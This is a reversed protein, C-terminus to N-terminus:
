RREVLTQIKETVMEVSGAPRCAGMLDSSSGQQKRDGRVHRDNCLADGAVRQKGMGAEPARSGGAVPGNTLPIPAM